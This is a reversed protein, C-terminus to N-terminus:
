LRHTGHAACEPPLFCNVSVFFRDATPWNCVNIPSNTVVQGSNVVNITIIKYLDSARNEAAISVVSKQSTGIRDWGESYLFYVQYSFVSKM